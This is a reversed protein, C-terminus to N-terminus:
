DSRCVVASVRSSGKPPRSRNAESSAGLLRGSHSGSGNLAPCLDEQNPSIRTYSM